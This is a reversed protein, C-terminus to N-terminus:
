NVPLVSGEYQTEIFKKIEDGKLVRLLEVIEPRTEDGSRVAVINAYTTAALSDPSEVYLADSSKLGADLAFNGNIAAIDVDPLSRPLQAAELEKIKLNKTNESVDAVTAKLGAGDKLKILGADQLLLLARAENTPDNPVAVIAGDALADLSATKAPYIGFPEFHVSGASVITLNNEANFDDLYPQHQFYNADLDGSALALNPQVYDTFEKVDLTIGEAELIPKAAALIEAHPVPSAGVVITVPAGTYGGGAETSDGATASETTADSAAETTEAAETAEAATTPATTATSATTGTGCGAASVLTAAALMATLIRKLTLSKKMKYM